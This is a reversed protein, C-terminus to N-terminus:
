ILLIKFGNFSYFLFSLFVILYTSILKPKCNSNVIIYLIKSIWPDLVVGEEGQRGRGGEFWQFLFNYM